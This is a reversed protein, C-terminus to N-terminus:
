YLFSKMNKEFKEYGYYKELTEKTSKIVNNINETNQLITLIKEVAVNTDFQNQEVILKEREFNDEKKTFSEILWGNENEFIIENYIPANMTIVPTHCYCSEFFGLGLGENKSLHISINNESYKYLIEGYSLHGRSVNIFTENEIESIETPFNGQIVINLEFNQFKEYVKKFTEIIQLTNKKELGNLGTLHLIKIKDKVLCMKNEYSVTPPVIYHFGVYTHYFNNYEKLKEGCFRNNLGIKHFVNYKEIEDKKVVDLNPLVITKVSLTNLHEAIEYIKDYRVEPILMKKIKYNQVFLDLELMTIHLRRNPSYYIKQTNWEEKKKLLNNVNTELYPKTAFIFVNFGMKELLFKYNRSQIGLGQDCWPCFIGINKNKTHEIELFKSEIRQFDHQSKSSKLYEHQKTIVTNYYTEDNILKQVMDHIIQVKDPSDMDVKLLNEHEIYKLNGRNGFIVPIGNSFSEYVVRGFTEDLFTPMLVIKTQEYILHVTNERQLLLKNKANGAINMAKQINEVGNKEDETKIGLFSLQPNKKILEAFIEGGKLTHVDFLTIYECRFNDVNEIKFRDNDPFTPFVHDDSLTINYKKCTVDKVFKSAFYFYDINDKMYIFNKTQQHKELNKEINQLGFAWNIDLVEEWFCWISITPINLSNGIDCFLKKGAGQTFIYNINMPKLYRMLYDYNGNHNVNIPLQIQTYYGHNIKQISNYAPKGWDHFNIWFINYNRSHFFKAVDLIFEEGGGGPYSSESFLLLNRNKIYEQILNDMFFKPQFNELRKDLENQYKRTIAAGNFWHIGLTKETFSFPESKEFMDEIQDCQLPLYFEHDLIKTKDDIEYVKKEDDFLKNWMTAGITQYEDKNYFNKCQKLIFDFLKSDKKSCFLGIPYYKHNGLQCRFIVNNVDDKIIDEINNIYLIDFDSWIGGYTYLLYYRCYDSKIVESADKLFDVDIDIEHYSVNEFQKLNKFYDKCTMKLKQEPTHWDINDNKKKPYHIRIDWNDHYKNFSEITLFNLYSFTSLDWYLHLIKPFSFTM